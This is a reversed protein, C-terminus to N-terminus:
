AARHRNGPAGQQRREGASVDAERRREVAGCRQGDVGAPVGGKGAGGAGGGGGGVGEGVGGWGGGGVGAAGGGGGPGVLGGGWGLKGARRPPVAARALMWGSAAPLVLKVPWGMM